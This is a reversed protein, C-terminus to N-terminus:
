VLLITPLTLHTYSVANPKPNDHLIRKLNQTLGLFVYEGGCKIEGHVSRPTKLLTRATKPLDEHGHDRLILLLQDVSQHTWGNDVACKALSQGLQPEEVVGEIDRDNVGEDDESTTALPIDDESASYLPLSDESSAFSIDDESSHQRVDNNVKNNSAADLDDDADSLTDTEEVFKFVAKQRKRWKKLRSAM